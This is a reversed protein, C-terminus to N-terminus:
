TKLELFASHASNVACDFAYMGFTPPNNIIVDNPDLVIRMLLDILYLPFRTLATDIPNLVKTTGMVEDAGCGVLLHEM